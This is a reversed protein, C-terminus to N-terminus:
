LPRHGKSRIGASVRDKGPLAAHRLLAGRHHRLGGVPLERGSQFADANKRARDASRGSHHHQQLPGSVPPHLHHERIINTLKELM